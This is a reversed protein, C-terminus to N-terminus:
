IHILSLAYLILENKIAKAVIRETITAGTIKKLGYFIAPHHSIIMNCGLAIAEDMVAETCDLCVMIGKVAQQPHGILLGSNDYSEQLHLPAISELFDIVEACLVKM